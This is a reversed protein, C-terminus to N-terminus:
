VFKPGIMTVAIILVVVFAVPTASRYITARRRGLELGLGLLFGGILGGVHAANDINPSSVGIFINLGVLIFLSQLQQRAGPSGRHIFYFAVWAGLVGFVAGSAGARLGGSTFVLSAASGLLGSTLYLAIFRLKGYRGEVAQGFLFLAFMNFALHLLGVHLFMSAILRWWQDRPLVPPLAGFEALVRGYSRQPDSAALLSMVVFLGVNIGILTMTLSSARMRRVVPIKDLQQQARYQVQGLAGERARGACVPCHVGVPADIMDDPCIPRGCRSCQVATTRDPHFACPAEAM